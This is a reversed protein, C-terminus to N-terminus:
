EFDTDEPDSQIYAMIDEYSHKSNAVEALLAEQNAQEKKERLDKLAEVAKDYMEKRKLVLAETKEIEEDINVHKRTRAM